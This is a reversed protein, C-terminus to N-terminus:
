GNSNTPWAGRLETAAPQFLVSLELVIPDFSATAIGVQEFDILVPQGQENVLVNLGQLDGHQCCRRVTIHREEFVGWPIDALYDLVSAMSADSILAQRIQQVSVKESNAGELWPSTKDKLGLILAESQANNARLFEFVSRDFAPDLTYFIAANSGAGEM